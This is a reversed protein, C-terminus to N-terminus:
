KNFNELEAVFPLKEIKDGVNSRKYFMFAAVGTILVGLVLGLFFWRWASAGSVSGTNDNKTQMSNIDSRNQCVETFDSVLSGQLKNKFDNYSYEQLYEGNYRIKVSYENNNENQHLEIILNSAYTPYVKCTKEFVRGKNWGEILCEYSTYNLGALINILTIDHASFMIMKRQDKGQIKRELLALVEKFLPHSLYRKQKVSGFIALYPLVDYNYTMNKEYVAFKEPLSKGAYIDNQFVDFIDHLKWLTMNTKSYGIMEAVNSMTESLEDNLEKYEKTAYQENCWDSVIPCVRSDWPRLLFEQTLDNTHIPIPQYMSPLADLDEKNIEYTENFPPILLDSNLNSPIKPGSGLPYLGYLQSSASMITRNVNTSIVYIESENYSASLFNLKEIYEKRLFSGLIYHQRMGVPTLEGKSKFEKANWYDTLPERAGHRFTEILFVLKSHCIAVCILFFYLEKIKRGM